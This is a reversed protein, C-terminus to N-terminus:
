KWKHKILFYNWLFFVKQLLSCAFLFSLCCFFFHFYEICLFEKPVLLTLLYIFFCFIRHCWRVFYFFRFVLQFCKLIFISHNNPNKKNQKHRSLSCLFCKVQPLLLVFILAYFFFPVFIWLVNFHRSDRFSFMKLM